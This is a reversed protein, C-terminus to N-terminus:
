RFMEGLKSSAEAYHQQIVPLSDRATRGAGSSGEAEVQRLLRESSQLGMSGFSGRLKHALRSTSGGDGSEIACALDNLLVPTTEIFADALYRCDAVPIGQQQLAGLFSSLEDGIAGSSPSVPVPVDIQKVPEPHLWHKLKEALESMALPKALYDDFGASLCRDREGVLANATLAIIPPLAGNQPDSRILRTATFGDMDPMQCDMFVIDYPTRRVAELAQRGDSVIDVGYGLKSLMLLMVKQSTANDEAVLVRAVPRQPPSQTSAGDHSSRAPWSGIARAVAQVFQDEPVPKVLFNSAGLSRSESLAERDHYSAWFVIPLCSGAENTRIARALEIGNMGPMHLDLITVDFPQRAMVSESLLALAEYGTAALEVRAGAAELYRQAIQRNAANDDVVLARRSTLDPLEL